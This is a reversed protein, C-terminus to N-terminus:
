YDSFRFGKLDVLIDLSDELNFIRVDFSELLLFLQEINSITNKEFNRWAGDDDKIFGNEKLFSSLQKSCTQRQESSCKRKIYHVKPLFPSIFVSLPFQYKM